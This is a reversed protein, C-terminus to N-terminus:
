TAPQGDGDEEPQLEHSDTQYLVWVRQVQADGFLREVVDMLRQPDIKIRTALAVVKPLVAPPPPPAPAANTAPQAPRAQVGVRGAVAAVVPPHAPAPAPPPDPPSDGTGRALCMWALDIAGTVGDEELAEWFPANAILLAEDIWSVIQRADFSTNRLIRNPNAMALGYVDVIGEEDLRSEIDSTIGRIKTLPLTRTPVATPGAGTLLRRAAEEVASAVYRPAFGALFFVAASAFHLTSQEAQPTGPLALYSVVAALVPGLALTVACWVAVGGTIDRRFNRQGLNLLVYVYAGIAGLRMPRLYDGSVPSAEGLLYFWTVGLLGILGAPLAYRLLLMPLGFEAEESRRASVLAPGLFDMGLGLKFHRASFRTRYLYLYVAHQLVVVAPLLALTWGCLLLM